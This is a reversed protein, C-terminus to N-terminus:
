IVQVLSHGKKPPSPDRFASIIYILMALTALWLAHATKIFSLFPFCAFNDKNHEIGCFHLASELWSANTM